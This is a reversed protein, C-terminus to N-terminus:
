LDPGSSASPASTPSTFPDRPQGEALAGGSGSGAAARLDDNWDKRVPRIRQWGDGLRAAATDGGVDNDFACIRRITSAICAIYAPLEKKMGGATSLVAHGREGADHRIKFLSIADVASEVLYVAAAKAINGVRFGGLDKRSGPSMGTFRSGDERPMTGKLETGVIEGSEPDRCVFVANRRADAYLDGMEHLRDLYPGPLARDQVLHKRVEPWNQLVPAPPTFPPSEAVAEKVRAVAQRRLQATLDAAAAGPGFRDALWALAGNFDARTVHQVLDISGGRGSGALHDFWKGAKAGTGVTINFGEAKWRDKEHPDQEFGLRDLVDSLPLARMRGALNKQQDLAAALREARGREKTAQAQAAKRGTRDAEATRGRAVLPAVQARLQSVQDRHWGDPDMLIRPPREIALKVVPRALEGYFRRVSEHEATSGEVGRRLGLPAVAAAYATQQQACRKAGGIWRRANLGGSEPDLPVVYGTLHPTREDAHLRLHAINDRGYEQVLWETSRDLWDQQQEPSAESWWEPSATLLVEIALVSNSRRLVKGDQGKAGLAPVLAEVDAAPDDGGILVRNQDLRAPDANPTERERTMHQASAHVLGMSKLKSHRYIAFM